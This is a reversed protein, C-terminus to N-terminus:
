FGITGSGISGGEFNSNKGFHSFDICYSKSYFKLKSVSSARGTGYIVRKVSM